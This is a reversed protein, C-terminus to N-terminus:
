TWPPTSGRWPNPCEDSNLVRRPDNIKGTILDLIGARELCARLKDFHSTMVTPTMWKARLLEENQPKRFKLNPHRAQWSIFWDDQVKGSALIQKANHSLAKYHRGVNLVPRYKVMDHM